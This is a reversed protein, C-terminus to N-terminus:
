TMDVLHWPLRDRLALAGSLSCFTDDWSMNRATEQFKPMIDYRALIQQVVQSVLERDNEPAVRQGLLLLACQGLVDSIRIPLEYFDSFGGVLLANRDASMSERLKLLALRNADLHWRIM